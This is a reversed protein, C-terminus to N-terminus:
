TKPPQSKTNTPPSHNSPLTFPLSPNKILSDRSSLESLHRLYPPLIAVCCLKPQQLTHSLIRYCSSTWLLNLQSFVNTTINLHRFNWDIILTLVSVLSFFVWFGFVRTPFSFLHPLSLKELLPGSELRRGKRRKAKPTPTKRSLWTVLM